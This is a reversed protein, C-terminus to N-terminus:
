SRASVAAPRVTVRLHKSDVDTEKPKRLEKFHQFTLPAHACGHYPLVQLTCSSIRPLVHNTVCATAEDGKSPPQSHLRVHGAADRIDGIAANVSQHRVALSGNTDRFTM